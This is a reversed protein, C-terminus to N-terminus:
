PAAVTLWSAALSQALLLEDDELLEEDVDEDVVGVVVVVVVTVLLVVLLGVLVAVFGELELVLVVDL